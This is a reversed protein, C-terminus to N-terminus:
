AQETDVSVGINDKLFNTNWWLSICNLSSMRWLICRYIIRTSQLKILFLRSSVQQPWWTAGRPRHESHAPSRRAEEEKASRRGPGPQIGPSWLSLFCAFASYRLTASLSSPRTICAVPSKVNYRSRPGTWICGLGTTTASGSWTRKHTQLCSPASWNETYQATASSLLSISCITLLSRALLSGPDAALKARSGM